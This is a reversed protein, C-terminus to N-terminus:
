TNNINTVRQQVSSTNLESGTYDNPSGVSFTGHVPNTSNTGSTYNVLTVDTSSAYTLASGIAGGGTGGDLDIGTGFAVGTGQIVSGTDSLKFNVSLKGDKDEFLCNDMLSLSYGSAPAIANQWIISGDAINIEMLYLKTGTGPNYSMAIFFRNSIVVGGRTDSNAAFTKQWQLTGSSNYKFIIPEWNGNKRVRGAAYVNESSDLQICYSAYNNQGSTYHNRTWQIGSGITYKLLMVVDAGSAGPNLSESCNAIIYFTSGTGARVFAKVTTGNNTSGGIRYGNSFSLSTGTLSATVIRINHGSSPSSAYDSFIFYYDDSSGNVTYLTGGNGLYYNSYRWSFNKVKNLSGDLTHFWMSNATYAYYYGYSIAFLNTSPDNGRYPYVSYMASGSQTGWINNVASIGDGSSTLKTVMNTPNSATQVNAVDNGNPTTYITGDTHQYYWAPSITQQSLTGSSNSADSQILYTQFAPEQRGATPWIGQKTYSAVQDMTWIGSATSNLYPGSPVVQEKSIIGGPWDKISM